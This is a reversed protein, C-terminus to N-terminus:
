HKEVSNTLNQYTLSTISPSLETELIEYLRKVRTITHYNTDQEHAFAQIEKNRLAAELSEQDPYSILKFRLHYQRCINRLLHFLEGDDKNDTLVGFRLVLSSRVAIAYLTVSLMTGVLAETLAVDAAGLVADVLAAIAGLLGRIVLAHLPNVQLVLMLASLPLLAVIFYVYTETM